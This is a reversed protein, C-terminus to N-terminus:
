LSDTGTGERCGLVPRVMAPAIRLSQDALWGDVPLPPPWREPWAREAPRADALSQCARCQLRLRGRVATFGLENWLCCGLALGDDLLRLHIPCVVCSGVFWSARLHVEGASAVDDELCGPCWVAAAREWRSPLGPLLGQTTLAHVQEPCRRGIAALAAEAAPLWGANAIRLLRAHRAQPPEGLAHAFIATAPLQYRAAIRGVWSLLAEGAFAAPAIPLPPTV